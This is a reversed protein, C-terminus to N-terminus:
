GCAPMVERAMVELAQAMEQAEGTYPSIVVRDVGLSAFAQIKQVMEAPDLGLAYRGARASQLPLSMSVPVDAAQRGAAQAQEALYRMSERLVEPAMATPHWGNGVRAARRIAARSVGGILIPIHPKQVPKPAFAMGSFQYVRGQHSPRAQTWLAQMIAIAEDTRAGREEYPSGMANLEEAIVGVGVGLIVRGGSLVDLTAAAKALRMPHHYPLVLVSTGLGIRTTVAAIYSLITLPDYYPRDGIREYVYSVNFVHDSAWVSDYGLEEARAALRIISQVDEIGQNNSLSFGFKMGDREDEDTFGAWRDIGRWAV